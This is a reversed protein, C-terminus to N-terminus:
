QQFFEPTFTVYEGTEVDTAGMFGGATEFPDCCARAWGDRQARTLRNKIGMPTTEVVEGYGTCGHFGATLFYIKKKTTTNAEM